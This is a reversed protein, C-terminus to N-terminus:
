ASTREQARTRNQHPQCTSSSPSPTRATATPDYASPSRIEIQHCDSPHDGARAAHARAVAQGRCRGHHARYPDARHLHHGGRPRVAARISRDRRTYDRRGARSSGDTPHHLITGHGPSPLSPVRLPPARRTVQYVAKWTWILFTKISLYRRKQLEHYLEPFKLANM